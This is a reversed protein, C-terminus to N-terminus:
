SAAVKKSLRKPVAALTPPPGAQLQAELESVHEKLTKVQEELQGKENDRKEFFHEFRCEARCYKQDKRAQTFDKGCHECQRTKKERPM